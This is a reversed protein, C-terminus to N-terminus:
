CFIEPREAFDPALQRFDMQVVFGGLRIGDFLMLVFEVKVAFPEVFDLLHAEALSALLLVLGDDLVVAVDDQAADWQFGVFVDDVASWRNLPDHFAVLECRFFVAADGVVRVIPRTFVVVRLVDQIKEFADDGHAEVRHFDDLRERGEVLAVFWRLLGVGHMGDAHNQQRNDDEDAVVLELACRCRCASRGAPLDIEGGTATARFSRWM